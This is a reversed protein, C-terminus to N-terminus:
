YRQKVYHFYSSMKFSKKEMLKLLNKDSFKRKLQISKRKSLTDEINELNWKLSRLFIYLYIKKRMYLSLLIALFLDIILTLPFIFFLCLLSYNKILVRWNNRQAWYFKKYNNKLTSGEKHYCVAKPCYGIDFGWIRTTFSLDVDEHYAFLLPDFLELGDFSNILSKKLLMCAGSALFFGDYKLEDYQGKDIECLGRCSSGGFIDMKNGTSNIREPYDYYLLKPQLIGIKEDNEGELVMYNVMQKDVVTDNNLILVYEPDSLKFSFKIGLNNGGTYGLNTKNQILYLNKNYDILELDKKIKSFNESDILYEIVKIKNGDIELDLFDSKLDLNKEFFTKIKQVSDDSSGNDVVVVDLNIYESKLVSELCQITDESNNWNLIIVIVKPFIM